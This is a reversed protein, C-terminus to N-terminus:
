TTESLISLVVTTDATHLLTRQHKRAMTLCEPYIDLDRSVVLAPIDYEFLRSFSETRQETTMSELMKTEAMGIVQLRREDFYDFFGVLQLGPRNVDRIGVLANEFDKGKNVVALGLHKVLESLKVGGRMEDQQIM